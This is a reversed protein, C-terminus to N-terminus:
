RNYGLCALIHMSVSVSMCACVIKVIKGTSKSNLFFFFSLFCSCYCVFDLSRLMAQLAKCSRFTAAKKLGM